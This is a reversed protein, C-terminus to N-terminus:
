LSTGDIRAIERALPDVDDLLGTEHSPEDAIAARPPGPTGPYSIRALTAFAVSM